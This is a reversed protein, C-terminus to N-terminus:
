FQYEYDTSRNEYDTWYSSADPKKLKLRDRKVLKMLLGTPLVATFYVIFLVGASLYKGAFGGAEALIGKLKLAFSKNAFCISSVFLFICLVIASAEIQSHRYLIFAPIWPFVALGASFKIHEGIKM